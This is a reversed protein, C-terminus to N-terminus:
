LEFYKNRKKQNAAGQLSIPKSMHLIDVTLTLAM